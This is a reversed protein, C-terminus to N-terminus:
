LSNICSFMGTPHTGGAQQGYNSPPHEPHTHTHGPPTVLTYMGRALAMCGGGWRHVSHIFSLHLFM